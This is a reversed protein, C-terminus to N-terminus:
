PTGGIDGLVDLVAWADLSKPCPLPASSLKIYRESPEQQEWQKPVRRRAFSGIQLDHIVAYLMEGPFNTAPAVVVKGKPVLPYIAPVFGKDEPQVGPFEPNENDNDAYVSEYSYLHLNAVRLFGYYMAGNQLLEPRIVGMEFRTNDLLEKVNTNNILDWMTESDAIAMGATFGSQGVLDRAKKFDIIPQANVRDAWPIDVVITNEFEFDITEAIGDGVVIVEGNFMLQTCMWEERRTISEDMDMLDQQLLETRRRNPHYGNYIPEGPLRVAIDDTTLVRRPAVLPPEYSKTVFGGRELVKSGVRRSVFPAMAMGRKKVDFKVALTPFTRNRRFFTDKIFTPLPPTQELMQIMFKPDYINTAM